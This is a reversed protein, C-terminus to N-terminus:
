AEFLKYCHTCVGPLGQSGRTGRWIRNRFARRFARAAPSRWIEELSAEQLSGFTLTEQPVSANQFRHTMGGAGTLGVNTMVCPSVLGSASVFCSRLVNEPCAPLAEAASWEYVHFAMGEGGAGRGARSRADHITDRARPWLDSRTLISQEEMEPDLVLSLQSVVMQSAGWHRSLSVADPLEELNDALLLFAVHLRPRDLGAKERAERLARLNEDLVSLPCGERFRDHTGPTAGALSVGVIEVPSELLAKRNLDDLLVGNTTFGVRAGVEAAQRAMSWFEPHLLPEGWGQLYVLDAASLHPLLRAFTGPAM